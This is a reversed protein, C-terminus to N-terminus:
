STVDIAMRLFIYRRGSGCRGAPEGAQRRASRDVQRAVATGTLSSKAMSAFLMERQEQPMAEWMPTRVAGTRVVNVRIPALEM